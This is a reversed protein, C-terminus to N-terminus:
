ISNTIIRMFLSHLPITQGCKLKPRIALLVTWLM